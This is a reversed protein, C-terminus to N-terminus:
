RKLFWERLVPLASSDAPRDRDADADSREWFVGAMWPARFTQEVIARLVDARRAGADDDDVAYGPERDTETRIRLTTFVVKAGTSRHM